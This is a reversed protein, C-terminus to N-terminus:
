LQEYIHLLNKIYMERKVTKGAFEQAKAAMNNINISGAAIDRLTQATGAADHLSFYLAYEKVISKLPPIDSLMLPIGSAMAEFLSLPYGEFKSPMIFLDYNGIVEGIHPNHGMMNIKLGAKKIQQEYKKINGGGYIDLEIGTDKLHSFVELLYEFNKVESLRGVAILKLSGSGGNYVKATPKFFIDEVFNNLVFSKGKFPVTQLFDEKIFESLLIINCKKKKFFLEKELFLKLPKTETNKSYITHLTHVHPVPCVLQTYFGAPNLHSHVIDIQKDKIIRRLKRLTAPLSLLGKYHLSYCGIGKDIKNELESTGQFYVVTNDTHEQLGGPALSNVLLTEAGGANLSNIVHLVKKKM